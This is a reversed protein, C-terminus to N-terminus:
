DGAFGTDARSRFEVAAGHSCPHRTSLTMSEVPEHLDKIQMFKKIGCKQAGCGLALSPARKRGV